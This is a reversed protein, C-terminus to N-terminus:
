RSPTVGDYRNTEWLGTRVGQDLHVAPTRAGFRSSRHLLDKSTTKQGAVSEGVVCASVDRAVVENSDHELGIDGLPWGPIAYEVDQQSPAHRTGERLAKDVSEFDADPVPLVFLLSLARADAREAPLDSIPSLLGFFM